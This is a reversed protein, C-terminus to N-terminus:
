RLKPLLVSRLTVARAKPTRATIKLFVRNGFMRRTTPVLVRAVGIKNSFNAHIGSVTRVAGPVRSISVIAGRVRLGRTDKVTVVIRFSKTRRVNKLVRQVGTIRLGVAAGASVSALATTAGAAGSTGAPRLGAASSGSSGGGATSSGPAGAACAADNLAVLQSEEGDAGSHRDGICADAEPDTGAGAGVNTGGAAIPGLSVVPPDDAGSATSSLLLMAAVASLALAPLAKVLSTPKSPRDKM